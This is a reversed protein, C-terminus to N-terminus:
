ADAPLLVFGSGTPTRVARFHREDLTLVRDTEHRAALVVVSADALGIGLDRYQVLVARASAVDADGFPELRYAGRAIEDLLALAADAGVSSTLLYDIEALVFPSLLLPPEGALLADRCALHHRESEVLAAFLASTDLVIM